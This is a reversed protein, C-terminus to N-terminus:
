TLARVEIRGLRPNFIFAVMTKQEKVEYSRGHSEITVGPYVTGKVIVEGPYHEEFKERLFFLRKSGKEMLKLIHFKDERLKRLKEPDVSKLKQQNKMLADISLARAGLKKIEKEQLEIQDAILYDQGFCIKTKIESVSGLTILELGNKVRITGGMITGKEKGLILRGNCKINCHLLFNKIDIDGNSLILANEAFLCQITKKARLIAKGSGKVGKKIIISGEASVLADEVLNEIVLDAGAIVV